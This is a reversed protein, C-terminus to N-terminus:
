NGENSSQEAADLIRDVEAMSLIGDNVAEDFLPQLRPNQRVARRVGVALDGPVRGRHYQRWVLASSAILVALGALLAKKWM